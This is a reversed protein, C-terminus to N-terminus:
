EGRRLRVKFFMESLDSKEKVGSLLLYLGDGTLEGMELAGHSGSSDGFNDFTSVTTGDDINLLTVTRKGVGSQTRWGVLAVQTEEAGPGPIELVANCASGGSATEVFTWLLEGASSIKVAFSSAASSSESRLGKGCYLVSGDAAEVGHVAHPDFVKPSWTTGPPPDEPNFGTYSKPSLSNSINISKAPYTYTLSSCFSLSFLLGFLTKVFHLETLPPSLNQSDPSHAPPNIHAFSPPFMGFSPNVSFSSV